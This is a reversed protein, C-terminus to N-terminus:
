ALWASHMYSCMKLLSSILLAGFGARELPDRGGGLACVLVGELEAPDELSPGEPSIVINGGELRSQAVNSGAHLPHFHPTFSQSEAEKVGQLHPIICVGSLFLIREFRVLPFYCLIVGEYGRGCALEKM